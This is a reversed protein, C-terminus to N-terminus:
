NEGPFFRGESVASLKLVGPQGNTAPTDVGNVSTGASIDAVLDAIISLKWAKPVPKDYRM